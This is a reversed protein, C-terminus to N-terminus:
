MITHSVSHKCRQDWNKFKLNKNKFVGNQYESSLLGLIKDSVKTFYPSYNYRCNPRTNAKHVNM